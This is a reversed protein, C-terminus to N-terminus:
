LMAWRPQALTAPTPPTGSPQQHLAGSSSSLGIAVSGFGGSTAGTGLFSGDGGGIAVSYNGLSSPGSGTSGSGIATSWRGAGAATSNSNTGISTIGQNVTSLGANTGVSVSLDNAVADHGVATASNFLAIAHDGFATSAQDARTNDGVAIGNSGPTGQASCTGVFFNGNSYCQAAAPSMGLFMAMAALAALNVLTAITGSVHGGM